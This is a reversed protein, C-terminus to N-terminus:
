TLKSMVKQGSPGWCADSAVEEPSGLLTTEVLVAPPGEEIVAVEPVENAAAVVDAAV